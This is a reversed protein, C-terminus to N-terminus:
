RLLDTKISAQNPEDHNYSIWFLASTEDARVQNFAQKLLTVVNHDNVGEPSAWCVVDLFKLIIIFESKDLLCGLMIFRCSPWELGIM